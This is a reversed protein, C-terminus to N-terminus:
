RSTTAAPRDVAPSFGQDACRVLVAGWAVPCDFHAPTRPAQGVTAVPQNPHVCRRWLTPSKPSVMPPAPHRAWWSAMRSRCTLPYAQLFPGVARKETYWGGHSGRGGRRCPARLPERETLYGLHHAQPRLRGDERRHCHATWAARCPDPPKCSRRPRRQRGVSHDGRRQHNALPHGEAQEPWCPPTSRPTGGRRDPGAPRRPGSRGTAPGAASTARSGCRDGV